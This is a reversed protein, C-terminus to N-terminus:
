CGVGGVSYDGGMEHFDYNIVANVLVRGKNRDYALDTWGMGEVWNKFSCKLIIRDDGIDELNGKGMM